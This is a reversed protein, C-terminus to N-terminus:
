QWNGVLVFPAWFGPNESHNSAIVDLQALRLSQAKSVQPQQLYRYFNGILETAAKDDVKWLSAIASRAGARVAVGALGLTARDDGTATECATLTILDIPEAGPSARRILNELAGFTLEEATGASDSGTLVFTEEPVTSFQGHTALHFISYSTEELASAINNVTFDEDLLVKSNPLQSLVSDLESPVFDLATFNQGRATTTQQSLGMALAKAAPKRDAKTATLSIAPTTAIAYQEILYRDGDYLASMPINRLFGDQVFVLTDTQTEELQPKLPEIIQQYLVIAPAQEYVIDRYRKLNRRFTNAMQRFAAEDKIPIASSTGDPFEAILVISDSLIVSSIITTKSEGALLQTQVDDDTTLVCDDGFFNQLEALRLKDITQLTPKIQSSPLTVIPVSTSEKTQEANPFDALQLAIYQRYIPEVTDRFDFQLERDATLIDTRITELTAIAREYAVKAEARNGQKQQLRGMQWEWLYLSDASELANSAALQAQNTLHAAQKWNERCEELHGLEGLAFSEARADGIAQAIQRSKELWRQQQPAEQGTNCSFDQSRLGQSEIARQYSQALTIAAYATERNPPLQEVLEGVRQRTSSLDDSTQQQKLLLLNVQSRLETPLDRQQNTATIAEKLKGMATSELQQAEARLEAAIDENIRLLGVSDARRRAVQALRINISSLSNLMPATYRELGEAKVLEVGASLMSAATEYQGSLRSAEALTGLAAAQGVSDTLQRAITYAGGECMINISDADTSDIVASDTDTRGANTEVTPATGCLLAIARQYQGVTLYTQAQETLMRGYQVTNGAARYTNAAQEWQHIAETTEGRQQYARALNEHIIARSEADELAGESPYSSLAQKWLEIAGSYDGQQYASIGSTTLQHPSQVQAIVVVSPGVLQFSHSLVLTLIFACVGYLLRRLQTMRIRYQKFHNLLSYM